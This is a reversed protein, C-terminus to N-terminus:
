PCPTRGSEFGDLPEGGVRLTPSDPDAFEPHKAELEALEELLTDYERDSIEPRAEVYYLFNHRHLEKRLQEIRKKM